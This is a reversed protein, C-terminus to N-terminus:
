CAFTFQRVNKRNYSQSQDLTQCRPSTIKEALAAYEAGFLVTEKASPIGLSSVNGNM